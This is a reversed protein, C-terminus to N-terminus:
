ISSKKENELWRDISRKLIDIAQDIEEKSVNLPPLLRLVNPGATLLLLGQDKAIRILDAVPIEWEIGIMLGKGRIEKLQPFDGIERQLQHRLYDGMVNVHELLNHKEIAELTALGATTVLFNGGFTSGHSGLTFGERLEAKAAMAGIPFGSGLGKAITIIDPQIPYHQFGFWKGTRGIGTQVEDIMLLIDHDRALKEVEALWDPEAPHIGGEGQIVELLIAATHDSITQELQKIDEYPISVFGEPLPGFGEKVKAQGTATLTALTRGHFSQNFTIIQYRNRKKVLQQYRRALKIAAENAEAGSNAFFVLDMGSIEALKNALQIQPEIEFLNSTHWIMELQEMVKQKVEQPVHGLQLVGIGSTFDLYAHGKEDWLWSGEGKVPHILGKPYTPFLQNM